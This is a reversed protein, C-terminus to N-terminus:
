FMKMSLYALTQGHRVPERQNMNTDVCVRHAYRGKILTRASKFTNAINLANAPTGISYAVTKSLEEFEAKKDDGVQTLLQPLGGYLREAWGDEKSGDYVTMFEKFSLPLVYIEDGRGRFETVVDSSPFRSNFGTFVCGCRRHSM